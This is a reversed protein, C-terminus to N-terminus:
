SSLDQHGLHAPVVVLEWEAALAAEIAAAAAGEAAGHRQLARGVRDEDVPAPSACIPSLLTNTVVARVGVLEGGGDAHPPQRSRSLSRHRLRDDNDSERVRDLASLHLARRTGREDSPGTLGRLAPSQHHQHHHLNECHDAAPSTTPLAQFRPSVIPSASPPGDPVNSIQIDDWSAAVNGLTSEIPSLMANGEDDHSSTSGTLEVHGPEDHHEQPSFFHSANVLLFGLIVLCSGFIYTNSFKVGHHRTCILLKFFFCYFCVYIYLPM